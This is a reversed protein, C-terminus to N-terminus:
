LLNYKKATKPQCQLNKRVLLRKKCKGIPDSKINLAAYIRKQRAEAQTTTRLHLTKHDDTPLIMTIRQRSSMLNRISDWSLPIGQQKLQYRLTHVLHYAL